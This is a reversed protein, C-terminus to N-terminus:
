SHKGYFLVVKRLWKVVYFSDKCSVAGGATEGQKHRVFKLGSQRGIQMRMRLLMETVYLYLFIPVYGLM